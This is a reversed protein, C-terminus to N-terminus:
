GLIYYHGNQSKKQGSSISQPIDHPVSGDWAYFNTGLDQFIGSDTGVWTIKVSIIVFYLM